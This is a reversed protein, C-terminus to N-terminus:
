LLNTFIDRITNLTKEQHSFIFQPCKEAANIVTFLFFFFLFILIYIIFLFEFFSYLKYKFIM